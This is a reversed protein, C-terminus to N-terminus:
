VVPIAQLGDRTLPCPLNLHSAVKRRGHHFPGIRIRWLRSQGVQTHNMVEIILLDDSPTGKAVTPTQSELVRLVPYAVIEPMRGPELVPIQAGAEMLVWAWPAEQLPQLCLLESGVSGEEILSM